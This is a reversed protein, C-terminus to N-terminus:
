HITVHSVVRSIAGKPSPSDPKLEHRLSSFLGLLQGIIADLPTRYLDPVPRALPFVITTGALQDFSQDRVSFVLCKSTLQKDCIEQLLDVEFARRRDDESLYGVVLTENDIASLPGHRVGLFSEAFSTVRGATLELVKLASEVAAAKLAGSGLFCVKSFGEDVIRKCIQALEGLSLEAAVALEELIPTYNELNHVHALAQGIIVMNSFSSTMALGRDNVQDDLVISLLNQHQRFSRAMEGNENCTIVIHHITPHRSLAAKLVAVGESSDGSRSFSIWLYRKNAVLHEDMNTLLDTSPVTRVDCRWERQLLACLSQGIYDSSGAGVFLVALRNDGGSIGADSLFREVSPALSVFRNYTQRWTAPQQAIERPTHILGRAEKEAAPLALMERLANM